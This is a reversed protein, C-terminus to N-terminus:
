GLAQRSASDLLWYFQAVGQSESWQVRHSQGTPQIMGSKAFAKLGQSANAGQSESDRGELLRNSVKNQWTSVVTLTAMDVSRSNQKMLGPTWSDTISTISVIHSCADSMATYNLEERLRVWMHHVDGTDCKALSKRGAWVVIAIYDTNHPLEVGAHVLSVKETWACCYMTKWPVVADLWNSDLALALPPWWAWYVVASCSYGYLMPM